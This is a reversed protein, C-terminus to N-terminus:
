FGYGVGVRVGWANPFHGVQDYLIESYAVPILAGARLDLVGFLGAVRAEVRPEVALSSISAVPAPRWGSQDSFTVQPGWLVGVARVGGSLRVNPQEVLRVMVQATGVAGFLFAAAPTVGNTGYLPEASDLLLPVRVSAALDIRGVGHSIGVGPVVAGYVRLFFEVDEFGRTPAELVLAPQRPSQSGRLSFAATPFAVILGVPLRTNPGLAPEWTALFALNGLAGFLPSVGCGVGYCGHALEEPEAGVVLPVVVGFGVQSRPRFRLALLSSALPAGFSQGVVTDLDINWTPRTRVNWTPRTWQLRPMVVPEPARWEDAEREIAEWDPLLVGHDDAPAAEVVGCVGGEGIGGDRNANSAVCDGTQAFAPLSLLAAGILASLTRCAQPAVSSISM